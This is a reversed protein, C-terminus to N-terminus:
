NIKYIKDGDRVLEDISAKDVKDMGVTSSKQLRLYDDPKNLVHNFVNLLKFHSTYTDMNMMFESLKKMYTIKSFAAASKFKKFPKEGTGLSL